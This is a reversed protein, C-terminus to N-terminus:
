KYKNEPKVMPPSNQMKMKKKSGKLFFVPVVSVLTIIAALMFDDDISQIFAQKTLNSQLIYQAQKAATTGISGTVSTVYSGLHNVVSHYVPSYSQLAEGYLQSHYTMRITFISTLLAVGFSGGVQRIVNSIGSAQAMKHRPISLLSITTL